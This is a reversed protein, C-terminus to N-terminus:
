GDDRAGGRPSRGGGAPPKNPSAGAPPRPGRPTPAAVPAAAEGAVKDDMGLASKVEPPMAQKRWERLWITYIVRLARV